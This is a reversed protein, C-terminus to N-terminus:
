RRRPSLGVAIARCALAPAALDADGIANFVMRARPLPRDSDYFEPVVVFTQFVRDDLLNRTPINGGVPSVLLLVSM